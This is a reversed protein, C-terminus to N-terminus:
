EGTKHERRARYLTSESIKTMASVKKYSNGEDILKMAHELQHENYAKPRGDKFGDKTKAIAKGAQTREVIMTREFEAFALLINVMLRDMPKNSITGMNIITVTIGKDILQQILQSGERVSRALRDLKTIILTDGDKLGSILKDLKPRDTTSGSFQEEIIIECGAKKLLEVQDELSNGAIQKFTSVRALGYIM